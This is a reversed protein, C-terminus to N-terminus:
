KILGKKKLITITDDISSGKTNSVSLIILNDTDDKVTHLLDTIVEDDNCTQGYGSGFDLPVTELWKFGLRRIMSPHCLPFAMKSLNLPENSSKIKVCFLNRYNRREYRGCDGVFLNCRYGQQELTDIMRIYKSAETLISDASVNWSCSLNIFFNLIKSNISVRSDRIMNQPIGMVFNPVNPTFGVVDNVYTKRTQKVGEISQLELLENYLKSQLTEDGYKCKDVAEQLTNTLTFSYSGSEASGYRLSKSNEIFNTFIDINDFYSVCLTDTFHNIM